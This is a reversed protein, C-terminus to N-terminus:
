SLIATVVLDQPRVTPPETGSGKGVDAINLFNRYWFSMSNHGAQILSIMKLVGGEQRLTLPQGWNEIKSLKKLADRNENRDM